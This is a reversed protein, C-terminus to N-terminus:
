PCNPRRKTIRKLDEAKMSMSIAQLGAGSPYARRVNRRRLLHHRIRRRYPLHIPSGAEAPPVIRTATTWQRKRDAIYDAVLNERGFRLNAAGYPRGFNYIILIGNM